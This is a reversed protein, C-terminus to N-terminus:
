LLDYDKSSEGLIAKLPDEHTIKPTLEVEPFGTALQDLFERAKTKDDKPTVTLLSVSLPGRARMREVLYSEITHIPHGPARVRVPILIRHISAVTSGAALEERKLREVEEDGPVIRRLVWRLAPPAMLSTAMAMIVIMSFTDQSLI